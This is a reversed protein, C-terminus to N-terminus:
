VPRCGRERWSARGSEFQRGQLYAAVLKRMKQWVSPPTGIIGGGYQLSPVFDQRAVKHVVASHKRAFAMKGLRAAIACGRKQRAIRGRESIPGADRHSVGLNKAMSEFDVGRKPMEQHLAERLWM